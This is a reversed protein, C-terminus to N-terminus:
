FQHSSACICPPAFLTRRTHLTSIWHTSMTANNSSFLVLSICSLNSFRWEKLRRDTKKLRNRMKPCLSVNPYTGPLFCSYAPEGDFLTCRLPCRLYLRLHSFRCDTLSDWLHYDGHWVANRREFEAFNLQM